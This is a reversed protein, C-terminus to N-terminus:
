LYCILFSIWGWQYDFFNLNGHCHSLTSKGLLCLIKLTIFDMSIHSVPWLDCTMKMCQQHSHLATFNELSFHHCANFFRLLTCIMSLSIRRRLIIGLFQNSFLVSYSICLYEDCPNVSQCFNFDVILVSSFLYPVNIPPINNM